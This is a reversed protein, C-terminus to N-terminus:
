LTKLNEPVCLSFREGLMASFCIDLDLPYYLLSFTQLIFQHKTVQRGTEGRNGQKLSLFLFHFRHVLSPSAAKSKCIKRNDQYLFLLFLVPKQLGQCLQLLSACQPKWLVTFRGCWFVELKRQVSCGLVKTM